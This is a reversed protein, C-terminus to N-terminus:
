AYQLKPKLTFLGKNEMSEMDVEWNGSQRHYLIRHLLSEYEERGQKIYEKDVKYVRNLHPAKNMVAIIYHNGPTFDKQELAEQLWFSVADEYFALQRYTHWFEFSEPYDVIHKGTSKVDIISFTKKSLDLVLRDLKSRLEMEEYDVNEGGIVKRWYIPLENYVSFKESSQLELMRMATQNHSLQAIMSRVCQDDAYDVVLKDTSGQLFAYYESCETVKKLRTAPTYSQGWGTALAYEEIQETFAELPDNVQDMLKAYAFVSDLITCIAESPKKTLGVVFNEPELLYKHLLDGKALSPSTEDPLLGDVFRKFKQPSGDQYPNIYSLASNSISKHAFYNM